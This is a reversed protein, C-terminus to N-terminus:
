RKIVIATVDGVSSPNYVVVRDNVSIDSVSGIKGSGNKNLIFM